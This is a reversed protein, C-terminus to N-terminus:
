ELVGPLVIDKRREPPTVKLETVKGGAYRGEITTHFPAHLKFEVNWEKPWAPLVCLITVICTFSTRM